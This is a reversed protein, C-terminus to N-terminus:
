QRRGIKQRSAARYSERMTPDLADVYRRRDLVELFGMAHGEHVSLSGEVYEVEVDTEECLKRLAEPDIGSLNQTRISALYRAARPRRAAYEQISEFDVFPLKTHIEAVNIPVADLVAQTLQGLFAFSIPRLIHVLTSDVVLDFDNDLRFVTDNLLQMTDDRVRLLKVKLTGKFQTARRLATIRREEADIMRAFYCVITSADLLVEPADLLVLNRATHLGRIADALDDSLALKCYDISGYKESPEYTPPSGAEDSMLDLTAQIMARLASQVQSNAPVAFFSYDGANLYGVGFEISRTSGIDFDLDM